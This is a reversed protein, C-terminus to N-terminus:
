LAQWQVRAAEPSPKNVIRMWANIEYTVDFFDPPCMLLRM